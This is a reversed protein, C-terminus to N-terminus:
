NNLWHQGPLVLKAGAVMAAHFIGWGMVHCPPVLPLITTASGIRFTDVGTQSIGQLALTRHSYLVGQWLFVEHLGASTIVLCAHAQWVRQCHM